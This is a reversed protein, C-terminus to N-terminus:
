RRPPPSGLAPSASATVSSSAALCEATSPRGQNYGTKTVGSLSLGRHTFRISKTTRSCGKDLTYNSKDRQVGVLTDAAGTNAPGTDVFAAGYGWAPRYAFVNMQLAGQSTPCSVTGAVTKLTSRGQAAPAPMTWASAAAIVSTVAAVAFIRVGRCRHMQPLHKCWFHVEDFGGSLLPTATPCPRYDEHPAPGSAPHRLPLTLTAPTSLKIPPIKATPTSLQGAVATGARCPRPLLPAAEGNARSDTASARARQGAPEIRAM